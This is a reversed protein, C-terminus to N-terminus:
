LEYSMRASVAHELLEFSGIQKPKNNIRVAVRWKCTAKDFSIGSVGSKNTSRLREGRALIGVAELDSWGRNLREKITTRKIKYLDSSESLTLLVGNLNLIRNNSRNNLNQKSTVIRCNDPFYGKNNDKRDIELGKKWGNECLWKIFNEPSSRWEDCVTIGRGGYRKFYIHKESYCRRVMGEWTGYAPHSSYGHLGIDSKFMGSNNPNAGNCKCGQNFSKICRRINGGLMKKESGCRLCNVLYKKDKNSEESVDKIVSLVGYVNGVMDYSNVRKKGSTRDMM